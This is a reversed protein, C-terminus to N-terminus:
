PVLDWEAEVYSAEGLWWGRMEPEEDRLSIIFFVVANGWYNLALDIGSPTPDSTPHSHYFALIELGAPRMDKVARFMSKPEAQYATPRALENVLPYCREVTAVGAQPVAGALLGCCENPLERRAQELMARHIAGPLLIRFPM